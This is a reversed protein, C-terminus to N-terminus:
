LNQNQLPFGRILKFTNGKVCTQLYQFKQTDSLNHNNLILSKLIKKFSVWLDIGGYLNLIGLKPLKIVGEKSNSMIRNEESSGENSKTETKNELVIGM